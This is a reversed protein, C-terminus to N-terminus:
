VRDHDVEKPRRVGDLILAAVQRPDLWAEGKLNRQSATGLYITMLLMAMSVPEFPRFIGEEIGPALIEGSLYQFMPQYREFVHAKLPEDPGNITNFLVQAQPLRLRVFEFGAELFLELRRAPDREPSARSVIFDLHQQAATDILAVLLAQKSSFYNYVTGKAFGAAQSITNINAGLFGAKAFEVAAADLLRQRTQQTTKEHDSQKIRAM